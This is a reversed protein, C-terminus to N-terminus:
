ASEQPRHRMMQRDIAVVIVSMVLGLVAAGFVAAYLKAPDSSAEQGYSFIKRGVGFSVGLSIESVIVGVVAAAGAVRLAPAIFPVAAPFRLKFLTRWWGAAFSDMLELSAPQASQLGRLTGLAVPFFALFVGLVLAAIWADTALERSAYALLSLILPGLVIIPVTQSVVLYPMLAREVVRFRAMAVALLIGLSTGLIFAALAVRFSYWTAVLVVKIVSDPNGRVEPESLRSFMEWIHPMALDSARPLLRMGILSGGNDPGINKYVEWVVAVAAFALPYMAVRRLRSRTSPTEITM